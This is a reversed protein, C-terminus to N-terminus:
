TTPFQILENIDHGCMHVRRVSNICATWIWIRNKTRCIVHSKIKHWARALHINLLCLEDVRIVNHSKSVRRHLLFLWYFSREGGPLVVICIDLHSNGWKEVLRPPRQGNVTSWGGFRPNIKRGVWRGWGRYTLVDEGQERGVIREGLCLQNPKRYSCIASSARGFLCKAIMRRYYLHFLFFFFFIFLIVVLSWGVAYPCCDTRSKPIGEIWLHSLILQM